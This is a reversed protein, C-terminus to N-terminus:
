GFNLPHPGLPSPTNAPNTTRPYRSPHILEGRRAEVICALLRYVPLTDSQGPVRWARCNVTENPSLSESSMCGCLDNRALEVRRLIPPEVLHHGLPITRSSRSAILSLIFQVKQTRYSNETEIIRYEIIGERTRREM